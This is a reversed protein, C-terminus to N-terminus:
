VRERCSARGIEKKTIWNDEGIIILQLNQEEAAISLDQFFMKQSEDFSCTPLPILLLIINKQPIFIHEYSCDLIQNTSIEGDYNETIFYKIESNFNM